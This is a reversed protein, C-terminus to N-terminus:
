TFNWADEESGAPGPAASPHMYTVLTYLAVRDNLPASASLGILYDGLSGNGGLRDHEPVGVWISTDAGGLGWKHHWFVSLQNVARWSTPGFGNVTRTDAHGRWTGWIGFENWASTAYGFQGRWQSLTPNQAFEGFNSNFMWDQVVAASWKSNENAKRFLGYTLFGQPEGDNQHAVRYGAGAWDYAAASGGIQFGIGTWDSFRGLRTGFNLGTNIGNNQWGGDSVGRWSDYGVFAVIGRKPCEDCTAQLDGLDVGQGLESDRWWSQNATQTSATSQTVLPLPMPGGTQASNAGSDVSAYVYPNAVNLGGGSNSPGQGFAM